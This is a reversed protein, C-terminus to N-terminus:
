LSSIVTGPYYHNLIQIYSYGNKAMGNAGYQSMGVGHGYGRTTFTIGDEKKEIDFDASRLGLINRFNTGTYTKYGVMITKVRDGDTKDLINFETDINIEMELLLSLKDYSLTTSVLFSPNLNDYQSDVSVLYPYYNGWGYISSETKGNSTSHYVAEIYSGNYTLYMGKTSSVADKVKNYYTNFNSGWMGRLQNVDKYNQTSNSDTLLKGKSMAKLAYTRAIIAQAKLAESHFLAPMESSVVGTIYEELEITEMQGNSRQITIYTNNDVEEPEEITHEEIPQTNTNDEIVNVGQNVSQNVNNNIVESSINNDSNNVINSSTVENDMNTSTDIMNITTSDTDDETNIVEANNIIIDELNVESPIGSIIEQYRDKYAYTNYKDSNYDKNLIINGLISGGIVLVATTGAFAIKNDEIFKKIYEQINNYKDKFNGKAFECDIDFYLFLVDENDVSKIEYNTIMNEGINNKTIIIWKNM